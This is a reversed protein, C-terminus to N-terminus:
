TKHYHKKLIIVEIISFSFQFKKFPFFSTKRNMNTLELDSTEM